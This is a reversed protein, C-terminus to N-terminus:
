KGEDKFNESFNSMLAVSNDIRDGYEGIIWIMSARAAANDLAKL